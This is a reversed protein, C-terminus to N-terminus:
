VVALTSRVVGSFRHEVVYLGGGPANPEPPTDRSVRTGDWRLVGSVIGTATGASTTTLKGPWSFAARTQAGLEAILAKTADYDVRSLAQSAHLATMVITVVIGDLAMTGPGQPREASPEYDIAITFRPVVAARQSATVDSAGPALDDSLEGATMARVGSAVGTLVESIRTRIAAEDIISM